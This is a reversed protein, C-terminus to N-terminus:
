IKVWSKPIIDKDSPGGPGFWNLPAIIKKDVNKNMWAAWWSFSSNAIVNDSCASMLYLDEINSNGESFVINKFKLNQKCWEIDDSFVLIKDYTLLDLAQQYYSLPQVPHYGNSSVYDTRRIHLSVTKESKIFPYNDEIYYEIRPDIELNQKITAANEEFYKESQWYGDLHYRVSLDSLNKTNFNYYSFLDGVGIDRFAPQIEVTNFQLYKFENLQPKRFNQNNYFGLDYKIFHGYKEQLNRACAWQFLQNGLGGMIRVNIM